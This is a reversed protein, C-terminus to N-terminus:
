QFSARGNIQPAWPIVIAGASDPIGLSELLRPHAAARSRLTRLYSRGVFRIQHFQMISDFFLYVIRLVVTMRKGFAPWRMPTRAENMFPPRHKSIRRWWPGRRDRHYAEKEGETWSPASASLDEEPNMLEHYPKRGQRDQLNQPYILFDSHLIFRSVSCHDFRPLLHIRLALIDEVRTSSNMLKRHTVVKIGGAVLNPLM